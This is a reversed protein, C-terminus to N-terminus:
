EGTRLLHKLRAVTIKARKKQTNAARFKDGFPEPWYDTMFVADQDGEEIGLLKAGRRSVESFDGGFLARIFRKPTMAFLEKRRKAPQDLLMAWGAICGVTGCAPQLDEADGYEIRDHRSKDNVKEVWVDMDLRQPEEEIHKIVKEILKRNLKAKEM